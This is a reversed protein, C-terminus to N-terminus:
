RWPWPARRMREDYERAARAQQADRLEAALQKYRWWSMLWAGCLAGALFTAAWSPLGAALAVLLGLALLFWACGRM